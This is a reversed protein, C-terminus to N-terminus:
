SILLTKPPHQLLRLTNLSTILNRPRRLITCAAKWKHVMISGRILFVCAQYKYVCALFCFYLFLQLDKHLVSIMGTGGAKHSTQNSTAGPAPQYSMLNHITRTNWPAVFYQSSFSWILFRWNRTHLCINKQSVWTVQNLASIKSKLLFWQEWLLAGWDGLNDGPAMLARPVCSPCDWKWFCLQPWVSSAQPESTCLPKSPCTKIISCKNTNHLWKAINAFTPLSLSASLTVTDCCWM